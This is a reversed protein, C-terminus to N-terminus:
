EKCKVAVCQDGVRVIKVACVLKMPTTNNLLTPWDINAEGCDGLALDDTDPTSILMGSSSINLITGRQNVIVRTRGKTSVMRIKVPLNLLFRFGNRREKFSAEEKVLSLLAM